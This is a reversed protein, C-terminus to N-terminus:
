WYLYKFFLILLVLTAIIIVVIIIIWFYIRSPIQYSVKPTPIEYTQNIQAYSLNVIGAYLFALSMVISATIIFGKIIKNKRYELLKWLIFLPIFFFFKGMLHFPNTEINGKSLSILTTIEDFIALGLTTFILFLLKKNEM